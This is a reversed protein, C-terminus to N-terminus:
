MPEVTSLFPKNWFDERKAGEGARPLWEPCGVAIAAAEAEAWAREVLRARSVRYMEWVLQSIWGEAPSVGRAQLAEAAAAVAQKMREGSIAARRLVLPRISIWGDQRSERRPNDGAFEGVWEIYEEVQIAGRVALERVERRKMDEPVEEFVRRWKAVQADTREMWRSVQRTTIVGAELLGEVHCRDVQNPRGALLAKAGSLLATRVAAADGDRTAVDRGVIRTVAHEIPENRWYSRVPRGEAVSLLVESIAEAGAKARATAGTGNLEVSSM